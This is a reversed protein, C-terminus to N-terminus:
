EPGRVYVRDISLEYPEQLGDNNSQDAIRTAARHAYIQAVALSPAELQLEQKFTLLVYYTPM